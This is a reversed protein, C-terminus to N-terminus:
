CAKLQESPQSEKNYFVAKIVTPCPAWVFFCPVVMQNCLFLVLCNVSFLVLECCLTENEELPWHKGNEPPCLTNGLPPVRM